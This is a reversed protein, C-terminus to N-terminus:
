GRDPQDDEDGDDRGVQREDALPQEQDPRSTLGLPQAPADQLEDHQPADREADSKSQFGAQPLALGLAPLEIRGERAEKQRQGKGAEDPTVKSPM